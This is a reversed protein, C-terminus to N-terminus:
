KSQLEKARMKNYDDVAKFMALINEAETPGQINHISNFVYGGGPAFIKLRELVEEYVEEPTGFPLTKQTDVGGGWFVLKDGYKEKLMKADMGTASLQVPNLIDVGCDVFDDLFSTVAGCSHHFSKWETNAHIWDNMRKYHPKYFERFDEVPMFAAHQMGFDTGSIYVAQLKNGCAEYLLKANKMGAEAHLGYVDHVYQPAIKHAMMLDSLDRIGKPHKVHPGQMIAFDGLSILAAAYVLGCDSNEYLDNCNKELIRLQEDTYVGYDDKFDERASDTTEDFDDLNGRTINDFYFGGKPMVAGPEVSTDGCPYIYTRGADDVTTNFDTPVDVELGSQMTWPKRGETSFGFLTSVPPVQVCDIGLRDRLDEDVEGLLQFPEGIKIKAGNMGMANRLRALADANIGTVSTSGLDVVVKEPEIHNLTQALRKRSDKM